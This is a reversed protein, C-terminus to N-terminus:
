THSASVVLLMNIADEYSPLQEDQTNRELSHIRISGEDEVYSTNYFSYEGFPMYHRGCQRGEQTVETYIPKPMNLAEEYCPPEELQIAFVLDMPGQVAERLTDPDKLCPCLM